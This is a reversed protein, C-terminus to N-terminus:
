EKQKDLIDKGIEWYLRVLEVNVAVTARLQASRIRNKLGSLWDVYGHPVAPM